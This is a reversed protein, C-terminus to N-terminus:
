HGIEENLDSTKEKNLLENYLQNRGRFVEVDNMYHSYITPM